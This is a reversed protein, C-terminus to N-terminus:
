SFYKQTYISCISFVKRLGSTKIIKGKPILTRASYIMANIDLLEDIEYEEEDDYQLMAHYFIIRDIDTLLRQRDSLRPMRRVYAERKIRYM